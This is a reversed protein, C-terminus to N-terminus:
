QSARGLAEQLILAREHEAGFEAGVVRWARELMPRAKEPEGQGLLWRGFSSEM